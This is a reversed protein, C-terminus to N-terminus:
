ALNLNGHVMVVILFLWYFLVRLQWEKPKWPAKSKVSLDVELRGESPNFM